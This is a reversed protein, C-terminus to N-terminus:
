KKLLEIIAAHNGKEALELAGRTDAGAELLAKVVAVHGGFVAEQLSSKLFYSERWFNVEAGKSILYKVVDVHGKSAAIYLATNGMLDRSDAWAGAAILAKVEDLKGNDAAMALARNDWLASRFTLAGLDYGVISPYPMAWKFKVYREWKSPDLGIGATVLRKGSPDLAFQALEMTMHSMGFNPASFYHDARKGTRLDVVAYGVGVKSYPRIFYDGQLSRSHLRISNELALMLREALGEVAKARMSMEIASSVWLTSQFLAMTAGFQSASRGSQATGSWQVNVARNWGSWWASERKAAEKTAEEVSQVSGVSSKITADVTGYWFKAADWINLAQCWLLGGTKESFAAVGGRERVAVVAEPRPILLDPLDAIVTMDIPYATESLKRGNAPDLKVLRGAVVLFLGGKRVLLNSQIMAKPEFSWAKKGSKLDVAVLKDMTGSTATYEQRAVAFGLNPVEPSLTIDLLGQDIDMPGWRRAGTEPDFASVKRTGWALALGPGAWLSLPVLTEPAEGSWAVAGTEPSIRKVGGAVVFLSAGDFWVEHAGVAGLVPGTMVQRWATSGDAIRVATLVRGAKEESLVLLLDGKPGLFGAQPQDVKYTWQEAGSGPDLGLYVATKAGVGHVLLVPSAALLSYKGFQLDPRSRTWVQTGTKTDYLLLDGFKPVALVTSLQIEGVLVRDVDVFELLDIQDARLPIELDPKPQYSALEEAIPAMDKIAEREAKTGGRGTMVRIGEAFNKSTVKGCATALLAAALLAALATRVSRYSANM